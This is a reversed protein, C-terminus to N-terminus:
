CCSPSKDSGRRCGPTQVPGRGQQWCAGGLATPSKSCGSSGGCVAGPLFSHQLRCLRGNTQGSQCLPGLLLVSTQNFCLTKGCEPAELTAPMFRSGTLSITAKQHRLVTENLVKCCFIHRDHLFNMNVQLFIGKLSTQTLHSMNITGGGKKTLCM